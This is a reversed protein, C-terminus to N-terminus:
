FNNKACFDTLPLHGGFSMRDSRYVPGFVIKPWFGIGLTQINDSMFTWNSLAAM